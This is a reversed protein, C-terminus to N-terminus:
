LEDEEDNKSRLFALQRSMNGGYNTSNVNKRVAGASNERWRTESVENTNETAYPYPLVLSM